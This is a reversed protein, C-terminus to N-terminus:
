KGPPPENATNMHSTSESYYYYYYSEKTFTLGNLAVGLINSGVSQMIEMAQHIYDITVDKMKVIMIVGDCMPGVVASDTVALVSSIDFLVRDFQEQTERILKKMRDSGLLESPNRPREGSTLIYLNPIDTEQVTQQWPVEEVLVDSLGPSRRTDFTKHLAPRRLDCDVILVQEGKQSFSIGLNTILTTKGEEQRTSTVMLTKLPQDIAKFQIQTRLKRFSEAFPTGEEFHALTEVLRGKKLHSAMPIMGLLPQGLKAPVENHTKIRNDNMDIFIALFIGLSLGLTLAWAMRSWWKQETENKASFAYDLVQVNGTEMAMSLEVQEKKELFREYTSKKVQIKYNLRSVQIEKDALQDLHDIYQDVSKQLVSERRKKTNIALEIEILEDLLNKYTSMPDLTPRDARFLKKVEDQLVIQTQQIEETLAEVEPHEATFDRLLLAREYDLEVIKDQLRDILPSQFTTVEPLLEARKESLIKLIEERRTEEIQREIRTNVYLNDLNTLRAMGSGVTEFRTNSKYRWLAKEEEIREDRLKELQDNIFDLASAIRNRRHELTYDVFVDGLTNALQKAKEPTNSWVSINIIKTNPVADAEINQSLNQRAAWENDLEPWMAAPGIEKAKQYQQRKLARIVEYNLSESRLIEIQTALSSDRRFTNGIEQFIPQHAPPDEIKIRVISRFVKKDPPIAFFAILPVLVAVLLFYVLRRRIINFYDYINLSLDEM